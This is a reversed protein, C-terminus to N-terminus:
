PQLSRLTRAPNGAVVSYPEVDRTVVSGAAIVSGRGVTVGKLVISRMGIWVDDEISVAATPVRSWDKRATMWDGVDGRRESAHISHSDHDTIVCDFSILVHNGIRVEDAAMILSGGIFTDAGVEIRAGRRECVLRAQIMSHEGIRISTQEPARLRHTWLTSGEGIQVRRRTGRAVLWYSKDVLTLASRLATM